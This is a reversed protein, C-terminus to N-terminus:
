KVIEAKQWEELTKQADRLATQEDIEYESVLWQAMDEVTFARETAKRWLFAASENLTVMKNFNILKVDEAILLYENGLQRLTFGKIIHM